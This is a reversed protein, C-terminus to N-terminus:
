TCGKKITVRSASINTILSTIIFLFFIPNIIVAPNATNLTSSKNILCIVKSVTIQKINFAKATNQVSIQFEVIGTISIRLFATEITNHYPTM